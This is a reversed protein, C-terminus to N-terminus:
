KRMAVRTRTTLRTDITKKSKKVGNQDEIVHNSEVTKGKKQDDKAFSQHTKDKISLVSGNPHEHKHYSSKVSM